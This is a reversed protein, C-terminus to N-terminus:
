RYWCTGQLLHAIVVIAVIATLLVGFIFGIIM